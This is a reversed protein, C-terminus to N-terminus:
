ERLWWSPDRGPGPTGLDTFTLDPQPCLVYQSVRSHTRLLHASRALLLADVLVEVGKRHPSGAVGGDYHGHVSRGDASRLADRSVVRDGFATRFRDVAGEDDTALFIPRDGLRGLERRAAELFAEIPPATRGEFGQAADTLRVHVGLPATDGFSQAWAAGAEEAIAPVPECWAAIARSVSRRVGLGPYPEFLHADPSFPLPVPLRLPGRGFRFLGQRFFTRWADPGRAPDHYLCRRGWRVEADIGHREAWRLGNLTMFVDGFFGCGASLVRLRPQLPSRAALAASGDQARRLLSRLARRGRRM